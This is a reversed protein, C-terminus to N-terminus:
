KAFMLVFILSMSFINNVTSPSMHMQYEGAPIEKSYVVFKISILRNNCNGSSEENEDDFYGDSVCELEKKDSLLIADQSDHCIDCPTNKECQAEDSGLKDCNWGPGYFEGFDGDFWDTTRNMKFAIIHFDKIIMQEMQDIPLFKTRLFSSEKNIGTIVDNYGAWYEGDKLVYDWPALKIFMISEVKTTEAVTTTLTTTEVTTTTEMTTTTSNGSSIYDESYLSEETAQEFQHDSLGENYYEIIEPDYTTETPINTTKDISDILYDADENDMWNKSFDYGNTLHIFVFLHRFFVQLFNM